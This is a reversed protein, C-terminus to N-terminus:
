NVLTINVQSTDSPIWNFIGTNNDFYAGSPLDNSLWLYTTNSDPDIITAITTSNIGVTVNYPTGDM